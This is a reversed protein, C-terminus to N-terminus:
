QAQMCTRNHMHTIYTEPSPSPSLSPNVRKQPTCDEPSQPSLSRKRKSGNQVVHAFSHQTTPTLPTPPIAILKAPTLIPRRPTGPGTGTDQSNQDPIEYPIHGVFPTDVDTPTGNSKPTAIGTDAGTGGRTGTGNGPKTLPTSHAHADSESCLSGM